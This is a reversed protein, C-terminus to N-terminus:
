NRFQDSEGLAFGARLKVGMSASLRRPLMARWYESQQELSARDEELHLKPCSGWCLPLFSCRSCSPALTPDFTDWFDAQGTEAGPASLSRVARFPETVQLGCNYINGDAGIVISDQAIAACVSERPAPYNDLNATRDLKGQPVVKRVEDRAAEFDAFTLEIKRLFDVETSYPTLKAIQLQAYHHPEFWGRTLGFRTFEILEPRNQPSLNFRIDVTILPALQDVLRCAAEFQDVNSSTRHFRTKNHSKAMGDFTVQLRTIRHREVFTRSDDPWLTGNTLMSADYSVGLESCLAQIAMSAREIFPRNLMPEGGYWDVHLTRKKSGAFIQRIHGVIQDVREEQLQLTDRKQFCYYCGLNCDNTTTLTVIVPAEERAHCYAARIAALEDFGEPVLFGGRLLHGRTSDGFDDAQLLSPYACLTQLVDGAAIGYRIAAGTRANYLLYGGEIPLCFNYRSTSFRKDAPTGM